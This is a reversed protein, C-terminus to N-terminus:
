INFMYYINEYIRCTIDKVQSFKLYIMFHIVKTFINPMFHELITGLVIVLYAFLAAKNDCLM